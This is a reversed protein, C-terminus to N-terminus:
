ESPKPDLYLHDLGDIQDFDQDCSALAIGRAVATAAIWIDNHPLNVGRAVLAARIEAFCDIVPMDLPVHVYTSIYSQARARRSAGWGGQLHGSRLEAITIVSIALIAANLRKTVTAPWAGIVDHRSGASQVVSVFSTDCLITEPHLPHAASV